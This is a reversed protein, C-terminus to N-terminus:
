MRSSSQQPLREGDLADGPRRIAFTKGPAATIPRNLHPIDGALMQQKGICPLLIANALDGPRGIPLANSGGAIVARHLDPIRRGARVDEGIGAIAREAKTMPPAEPPRKIAM